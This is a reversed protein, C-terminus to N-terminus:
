PFPTVSLPAERTNWFVYFRDGLNLVRPYDSAGPTATLEYDLWHEGGDTSLMGRLRTREGDFEKWAVAVRQGTVALDAHAAADGGIRRLGDVGNELLRGYYVGPSEPAGSFWVAHLRGAADEAIAPGHHPCADIRWEEFTVRRVPGATGDPSFQAVAHDRINPEFVHRWMATVRGDQHCLLAIRCCECSNDALKFDGRFTAGRDDSVAFYVAAGRYAPAKAAVAAVGDRKDIWTVVVQGKANVALSDFRHTIERRDHHVVAPPSFTRGGDLSRSFKIEGTYPKALPKTWTVYIAGAPGLAIKPRADGGTDTTEPASTVLVPRSWSSGRDESRSVAIHGASKHAAWLIGNSDFAAQAGLEAQASREAGAMAGGHAHGAEAASATRVFGAPVMAIFLLIRIM